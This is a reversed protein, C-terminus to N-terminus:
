RGFLTGLAAHFLHRPVYRSRSAQKIMEAAQKMDRGRQEVQEMLLAKKALADMNSQDPHDQFYEWYIQIKELEGPDLWIGGCGPCQDIVIDDWEKFQEKIMTKACSLCLLKETSNSQDALDLFREKVAESWDTHRKNSIAKLSIPKVWYGGCEGCMRVGVGEYEIRHTSVKCRPCRNM